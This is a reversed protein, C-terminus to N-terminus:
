RDSRRLLEVPDARGDAVVARFARVLPAAAGVTVASSWALASGLAPYEEARVFWPDDHGVAQLVVTAPGDAFDASWAVWPAVSGHVAPEGTARDTRVDIGTCHPFRWFLGGYGAGVRGNSGPGGLRVPASGPPRFSSTMRLEWADAGLGRCSTVREERLVPRDDPGRWSLTATRTDGVVTAREVTVRGHDDRLVYGTDRVWTPGGWCNVGDVDPIAPGVGTHWDHDAPHHATVVTGATTRVPHLSPRPVSTPTTGAGDVETAVHTTTGDPGHVVWRHLVGDHASTM